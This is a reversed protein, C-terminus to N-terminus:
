FGGRRRSEAKGESLTVLQWRSSELLTGGTQSGRHAQASRDECVGERERACPEDADEGFVPTDQVGPPPLPRPLSSKPSLTQVHLVCVTVTRTLTGSPMPEPPCLRLGAGPGDWRGPWGWRGSAQLLTVDM